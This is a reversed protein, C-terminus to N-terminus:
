KLLKFTIPYFILEGIPLTGAVIAIKQFGFLAIILPFVFHELFEWSIAIIGIKWGQTIILKKIDKFMVVPNIFLKQFKRIM